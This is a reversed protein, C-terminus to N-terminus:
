QVAQVPAAQRAIQVEFSTEGIDSVTKTGDEVWTRITFTGSQSIPLAQYRVAAQAKKGPETNLSIKVLDGFFSKDPYLLQTNLTLSKGAEEGEVLWVSYISWEKPVAANPPVPPADHPITLNLRGFISIVSVLGENERDFIVKECVLLTALKLM